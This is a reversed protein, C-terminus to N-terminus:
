TPAEPLVTCECTRYGVGTELEEDAYSVMGDGSCDECEPDPSLEVPQGELYIIRTPDIDALHAPLDDVPRISLEEGSNDSPSQLKRAVEDPDLGSAEAVADIELQELQGDLELEGQDHHVIIEDMGAFYQELDQALIIVVQNGAFDALDHAHGSKSIELTGQIGKGTFKVSKLECSLAPLGNALIERYGAAVEFKIRRIIRDGIEEQQAERMTSWVSQNEITPHPIGSLEDIIHRLLAKGVMESAMAVTDNDAIQLENQQVEEPVTQPPSM